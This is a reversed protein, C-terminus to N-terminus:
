ASGAKAEARLEERHEDLVIWARNDIDSRNFDTFVGHVYEHPAKHGREALIAAQLLIDDTVKKIDTKTIQLASVVVGTMFDDPLIVEWTFVLSDRIEELEKRAPGAQMEELMRNINEIRSKVEANFLPRSVAAFIDDYTPSILAAKCIGVNKQAYALLESWSTKIQAKSWKYADSEILSFNGIAKIEVESLIKVKVIGAPSGKWTLAVLEHEAERILQLPTEAKQGKPARRGIM